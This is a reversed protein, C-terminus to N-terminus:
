RSHLSQPSSVANLADCTAQASDRTAYHDHRVQGDKVVCWRNGNHWAVFKETVPLPMVPAATTPTDAVIAFRLNGEADRLVIADVTSIGIVRLECRDHAHMASAADGLLRRAERDGGLIADRYSVSPCTVFHHLQYGHQFSDTSVSGAPLPWMKPAAAAPTPDQPTRGYFEDEVARQKAAQEAAYNELQKTSPATDLVRPAAM